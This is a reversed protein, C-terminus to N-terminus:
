GCVVRDFMQPCTYAPFLLFYIKARSRQVSYVFDWQNRLKAMCQLNWFRGLTCILVWGEQGKAM